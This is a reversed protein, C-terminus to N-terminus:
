DVFVLERLREGSRGPEIIGLRNGQAREREVLSMVAICRRTMETISCDRAAALRRLEAAVDPALNVSLRTIPPPPAMHM